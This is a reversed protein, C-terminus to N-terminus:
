KSCMVNVECSKHTRVVFDLSNYSAACVNSQTWRFSNSIAHIAATLGVRRSFCESFQSM